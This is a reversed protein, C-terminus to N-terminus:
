LNFTSNKLQFWQPLLIFPEYHAIEVKKTCHKKLITKKTQKFTVALNVTKGFKLLKNTQLYSLNVTKGFKLLKCGPSHDKGAVAKTIKM